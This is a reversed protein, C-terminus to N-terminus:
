KILKVNPELIYNKLLNKKNFYYIDIFPASLYKHKETSYKYSKKLVQEVM